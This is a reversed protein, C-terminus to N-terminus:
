SQSGKQSILEHTLLEEKGIFANPADHVISSRTEVGVGCLKIKAFSFIFYGFAIELLLQVILIVEYLILGAKVTIPAYKFISLIMSFLLIVFCMQIWLCVQFAINGVRVMMEKKNFTSVLIFLLIFLKIVSLLYSGIGIRSIFFFSFILSFEYLLSIIVAVKAVTEINIGFPKTCARQICILYRM